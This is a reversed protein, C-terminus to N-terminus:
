CVTTPTYVWTRAFTRTFTGTASTHPLPIPNTGQVDQAEEKVASADRDKIKAAIQEVICM